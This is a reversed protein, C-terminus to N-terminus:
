GGACAPHGCRCAEDGIVQVEATDARDECYDSCFDDGDVTCHCKEHGCKGFSM